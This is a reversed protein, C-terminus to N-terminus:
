WAGSRIEGSRKGMTITIEFIRDDSDHEGKPTPMGNGWMISFSYEDGEKKWHNNGAAILGDIEEFLRDSPM